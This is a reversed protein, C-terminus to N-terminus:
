LKPLTSRDLTAEVAELVGLRSKDGPIVDIFNEIDSRLPKSKKLFTKFSTFTAVDRTVPRPAFGGDSVEDGFKKKIFGGESASQRKAKAVRRKGRENLALLRKRGIVNALEPQVM